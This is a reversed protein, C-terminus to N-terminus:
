VLTERTNRHSKVGNEMVEPAILATNQSLQPPIGFLERSKYLLNICNEGTHKHSTSCKHFNNASFIATHSPPGVLGVSYKLLMLINERPTAVSLRLRSAWWTVRSVNTYDSRFDDFITHPGGFYQFLMSITARLAM